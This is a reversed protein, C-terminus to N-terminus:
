LLRRGALGVEFIVGPEIRENYTYLYLAKCTERTIIALARAFHQHIYGRRKRRPELLSLLSVERARLSNVGGEEALYVSVTGM